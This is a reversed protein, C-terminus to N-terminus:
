GNDICAEVFPHKVEDAESLSPRAGVPVIWYEGPIGLLRVVVFELTNSGHFLSGGTGGATGGGANGQLEVLEM